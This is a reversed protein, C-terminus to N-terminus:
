RNKIGLLHMVSVLGGASKCIDKEVYMRLVLCNALRRSIHEYVFDLDRM